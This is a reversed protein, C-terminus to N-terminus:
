RRRFAPFIRARLVDPARIPWPLSYSLMRGDASVLILAFAQPLNRLRAQLYSRTEETTAFASFQAPTAVGDALIKDRTAQVVMDVAQLTHSMGEALVVSLNTTDRRYNEVADARLDAITVGAAIITIIILFAGAFAVRRSSRFLSAAGAALAM